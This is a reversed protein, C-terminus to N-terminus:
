DQEPAQRQAQSRRHRLILFFVLAVNTFGLILIGNLYTLDNEPQSARWLQWIGLGEGMFFYSWTCFRCHFVGDSLLTLALCILAPLILVTAVLFVWFWM